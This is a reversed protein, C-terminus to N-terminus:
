LIEFDPFWHKIAAGLDRNYDEPRFHERLDVTLKKLIESLKDEEGIFHLTKRWGAIEGSYFVVDETHLPNSCDLIDVRPELVYPVGSKTNKGSTRIYALYGGVVEYDVMAPKIDGPGDKFEYHEKLFPVVKKEGKGELVSVMAIKM